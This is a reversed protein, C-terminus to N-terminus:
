SLYKYTLNMMGIKASARVFGITRIFSSNMSNEVFGFIHKVRVQISSKETNNAKQRETLPNNRSGKEHVKNIFDKKKSGKEQDKSGYMSDAYLAEGEDKETLLNEIARSAHVSASTVEHEEILKIKRDSKM